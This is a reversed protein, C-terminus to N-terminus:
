NSGFNYDQGYIMNHGMNKQVHLTEFMKFNIDWYITQM